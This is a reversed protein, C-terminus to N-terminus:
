RMQVRILCAVHAAPVSFYVLSRTLRAERVAVYIAPLM